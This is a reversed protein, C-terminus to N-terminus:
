KFYKEAYQKYSDFVVYSKSEKELIVAALKNGFVAGLDIGTAHNFERPSDLYFPQHGFYVHGFRGDYTDAWYVDDDTEQGLMVMRGNPNIYRVRLIQNFFKKKKSSLNQYEEQSPLEKIIDPVGAHFVISNYDKLTIYLRAQNLYDVDERSLEKTIRLMEGYGKMKSYDESNYFKYRFRANKEEHNGMVLEAKIERARKVVLASHPGKDLLDGSFVVRDESSLAIKDLLGDLERICGHVDGIIVTRM